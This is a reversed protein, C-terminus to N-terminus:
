LTRSYQSECKFIKKGLQICALLGILSTYKSFNEKFHILTIIETVKRDYIIYMSCEYKLLKDGDRGLIFIDGHPTTPRAYNHYRM